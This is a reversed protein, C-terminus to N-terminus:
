DQIQDELYEPENASVYTSVNVRNPLYKLGGRTIGKNLQNLGTYVLLIKYKRKKKKLKTPVRKM